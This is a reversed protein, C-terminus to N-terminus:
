IIMHDYSVINSLYIGPWKVLTVKIITIKWGRQFATQKKERAESQLYKMINQYSPMCVYDSVSITLM